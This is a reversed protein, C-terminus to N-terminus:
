FGNAPPDKIDLYYETVKWVGAIKEMYLGVFGDVTNDVASTVRYTLFAYDGDVYDDDSGAYEYGLKMTIFMQRVAEYLEPNEEQLYLFDDWIQDTAYDATYELMADPDFRELHAHLFKGAVSKADDEAGRNKCGSLILAAVSILILFIRKM